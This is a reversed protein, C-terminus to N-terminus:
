IQGKGQSVAASNEYTEEVFWRRGLSSSLKSWIRGEIRKQKVCRVGGPDLSKRSPQPSLSRICEM